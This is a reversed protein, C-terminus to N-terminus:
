TIKQGWFAWIKCLLQGFFIKSGNKKHPPCMGERGGEGDGVVIIEATIFLSLLSL